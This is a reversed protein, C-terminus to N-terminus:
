PSSTTLGATKHIGLYWYNDTLLVVNRIRLGTAADRKPKCYVM